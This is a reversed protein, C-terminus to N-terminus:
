RPIGPPDDEIGSCAKPLPSTDTPDIEWRMARVCARGGISVNHLLHEMEYIVERRVRFVLRHLFFPCLPPAFLLLRLFLSLDTKQSQYLKKIQPMLSLRQSCCLFFLRPGHLWATLIWAPPQFFHLGLYPPLKAAL